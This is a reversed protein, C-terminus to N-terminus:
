NWYSMIAPVIVPRAMSPSTVTVTIKKYWTKGSSINDFNAEQVYEVRASLSYKTRLGPVKIAFTGSTRSTDPDTDSRFTMSLGNFDDFDNLDTTGSNKAQYSEGSEPGLTSSFGGVDTVLGLDPDATEEDYLKTMAEEIVSTALSIAASSYESDSRMQNTELVSSNASLIIVGLLSISLTALMMQGLNM